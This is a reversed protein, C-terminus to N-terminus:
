PPSSNTTRRGAVSTSSAIRTASRQARGYGGSGPGAAIHGGAQADSGGAGACGARCGEHFLGVPGEVVGLLGAPVKDCVVSGALQDHGWRFGAEILSAGAVKM